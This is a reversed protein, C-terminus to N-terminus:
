VNSVEGNIYLMLTTDAIIIGEVEECLLWRDEEEFGRMISANCEWTRIITEQLEGFVRYRAYIQVTVMHVSKIKSLIDKIRM